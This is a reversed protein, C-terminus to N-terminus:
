SQCLKDLDPLVKKLLEIFDDFSLKSGDTKDITAQVESRVSSNQLIDLMMKKKDIVTSMEKDNFFGTFVLGLMMMQIVPDIVIGSEQKLMEIVIQGQKIKLQTDETVEAGFRSFRRLEEHEALLAKVKDALIKHLLMQTQAGVRTVSRESDVAPYRGEARFSQSFLLHGDTSAMVNTPILATFKEIDTEIVPIMTITGGGNEKNYCGARELNHAHQYFIDGPYSERGPIRESLLAIERMYKAHTGLDDLLVLVDKGKNCFEEAVTIATDPTISIVPASESSSAAVIVTYEMAKREHMQKIFRKIEIEEKGIAAYVCLVDKGKQNAILDILVSTKGSRPEGFILERQGKGLPVMTDIVTIGTVLQRKIISRADVTRAIVDLEIETGKGSVDQKDDLSQGLPNIARGLLHDGLDLRLGGEPKTFMDGPRPHEQDFMMAEVRTNQLSTVIARANTPSVLLDNVRISPLGEIHFLYDKAEVVFGVEKEHTLKTVAEKEQKKKPTDKM